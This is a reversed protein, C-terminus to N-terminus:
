RSPVTTVRFDLSARATRGTPLDTLHIRLTYLGPPFKEPVFFRYNRFYDRMPAHSREPNDGEKYDHRWCVAGDADLIELSSGLRTQYGAGERACTFNRVEVYVQVPDGARFQHNEPLPDYAGYKEIWRCFRAKSVTLAARTRLPVELDEVQRVLADVDQPNAAHLPQQSLRVALTLLATLVDRNPTEFRALWTGAQDSRKQLLCRLAEVLPPDDPLKVQAAPQPEPMSPVGPPSAQPPRTEVIPGPNAPPATPETSAKEVDGPPDAQRPLPHYPSESLTPGVEQSPLAVQPPGSPRQPSMGESTGSHRCGPTVTLGVAVTLAWLCDRTTM